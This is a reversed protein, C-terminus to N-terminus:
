HLLACWIMLIYHLLDAVLRERMISCCSTSGDEQHGRACAVSQQMEKVVCMWGYVHLQM